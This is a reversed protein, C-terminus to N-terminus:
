VTLAGSDARHLLPRVETVKSAVWIRGGHAQLIGRCVSLGLGAGTRSARAPQWFRDFVNALENEAIGAGSDKVSFRV